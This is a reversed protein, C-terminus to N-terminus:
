MGRPSTGPRSGATTPPTKVVDGLRWWVRSMIADIEEKSYYARLIGDMGDSSYVNASEAKHELQTKMTDARSAHVELQMTHERVLSATAELQRAQETVAQATKGLSESDAKKILSVEMQDLRVQCKEFTESSVKSTCLVEVRQVATSVTTMRASLSDFDAITCKTELEKELAVVSNRTWNREMDFQRDIKATEKQLDGIKATHDDMVMQNRTQTSHAEMSLETVRGSLSKLGEASAKTRVDETATTLTKEAKQMRDDLMELDKQRALTKSFVDLKEVKDSLMVLDSFLASHKSELAQNIAALHADTARIKQDLERKAADLADAASTRDRVADTQLGSVVGSLEKYEAITCKTRLSEDLERLREEHLDSQAIRKEMAADLNGLREKTAMSDKGLAGIWTKSLTAFAEHKADLDARLQSEESLGKALERRVASDEEKRSHQERELDSRVHAVVGKLNDLGTALSQLDRMVERVFAFGTSSDEAPSGAGTALTEAMPFGEIEM